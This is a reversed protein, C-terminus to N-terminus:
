SLPGGEHYTTQDAEVTVPWPIGDPLKAFPDYRLTIEGFGLFGGDDPMSGEGDGDLSGFYGITTNFMDPQGDYFLPGQGAIPRFTLLLTGHVDATGRVDLIGAIITGRLKVKATDEPNVAQENNFNGVDVSWGPLMMSSRALMDKDAASLAALQAQLTSADPQALLDPDATDLYFRTPGMLQVKNRWHTFESPTDGAISGLFTCGDFRVSNSHQKTDAVPTGNLSSMLGPFKAGYSFAGGGLDTQTQSGAYNWNMDVCNAETEIYTVGIFTCNEFVCNTATPITLNTFTFDKYITRQYWDYAATSGFPVPEWTAYSAATITGGSAVQTAFAAGSAAKTKFWVASEAFMDTTIVRLEDAPVGFTVASEGLDPRIPGQVITQYSAGNATDWEAETVGFALRGTVKAYRDLANIVGDDYGLATDVSNIVGDDNRDADWQDMLRGLQNDIDIFEATLSGLGAAAAKTTDFVVNGNADADFAGLFLDFDDVYEDGDNDTFAENSALGNAEDTNGPRLRADGDVDYDVVAAYFADLLLNLAPTLYYFDSRMVLPDGNGANLENPETGFRTAIPGEILVNKGIMLRNPTIIAYKIKKNITFDLQLTRRIDGDAGVSTVRVVPKDVMVEYTLRFWCRDDAVLMRIPRTELKGDEDIAPLAPDGVEVTLTNQDASHANRVAEALSDASGDEVYGEAPEIIVEGDTGADWTGMWLKNAFDQDIVGKRVVFREGESALRRAAFVLGTEAASMARSVKVASDATRLNGQAVIAMAVGLSGFIVLFMMALVSAVGRHRSRYGARFQKTIRDNTTGPM